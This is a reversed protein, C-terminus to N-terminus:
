DTRPPDDARIELRPDLGLRSVAGATGAPRSLPRRWRGTLRRYLLVGAGFVVGGIALALLLTLGVMILTGGILVIGAGLALAGARSTPQIRLGRYQM